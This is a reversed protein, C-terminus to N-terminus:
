DTSRFVSEPVIGGVVGVGGKMNNLAAIWQLAPSVEEVSKSNLLKFSESVLVWLAEAEALAIEKAGPETVDKQYEAHIDKKVSEETVTEGYGLRAGIVTAIDAQIKKGSDDSPM